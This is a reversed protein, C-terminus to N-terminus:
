RVLPPLADEDVVRRTVPQSPTFKNAFDEYESLSQAATGPRVIIVQGNPGVQRVGKAIDGAANRGLGGIRKVDTPVGDVLFDFTGAPNRLDDIFHVHKGEDKLLKAVRIEAAASLDGARAATVKRRLVGPDGTIKGCSLGYPDIWRLTNYAFEYFNSGSSM